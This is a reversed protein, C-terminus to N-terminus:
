PEMDVYIVEYGYREAIAGIEKQQHMPRMDGTQLFGVCIKFGRIDYPSLTQFALEHAVPGVTLRGDSSLFATLGYRKKDWDWDEHWLHVTHTRLM